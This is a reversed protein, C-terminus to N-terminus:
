GVAAGELAVQAEEVEEVVVVGIGVRVEPPSAARQRVRRGVEVGAGGEDAEDRSTAVPIGNRPHDLALVLAPVLGNAATARARKGPAVEEAHARRFAQDLLLSSGIRM